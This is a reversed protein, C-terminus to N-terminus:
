VLHTQELTELIPGHKHLYVSFISQVKNWRQRIFFFKKLFINKNCVPFFHWAKSKLMMLSWERLIDWPNWPQMIPEVVEDHVM